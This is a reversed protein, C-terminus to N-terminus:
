DVILYDDVAKLFDHAKHHDQSPRIPIKKKRLSFGPTLRFQAQIMRRVDGLTINPGLSVDGLLNRDENTGVYVKISTLRGSIDADSIMTSMGVPMSSPGPSSTFPPAARRPTTSMPMPTPQFSFNGNGNTPLPVVQPQIQGTPTFIPMAGAQMMSASARDQAQKLQQGLEYIKKATEIRENEMHRREIQMESLLRDREATLKKKDQEILSANADQFKEVALIQEKLKAREAEMQREYDQKEEDFRRREEELQKTHINLYSGKQSWDTEM